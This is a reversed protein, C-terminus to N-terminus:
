AGGAVKDAEPSATSKASSESDEPDEAAGAPKAATGARTAEIFSVGEFWTEGGDYSRDKRWSWSDATINHFVNRDIFKGNPDEGEGGIMVMTDGKKEAEYYKWQLSGAAVWRNDWKKTQPNFSRVNTGHFILGGPGPSSWDDQIAWGGLIYYGIWRGKGEVFGSRDPKLSKTTCDWDGVLFEFQATEEPANESLEGFVGARRTNGTEVEPVAMAAGSLGVVFLTALLWRPLPRPPPTRHQM